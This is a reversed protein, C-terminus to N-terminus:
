NNGHRKVFFEEPKVRGNVTMQTYRVTLRSKEEPFTYTIQRPLRVGQLGSYRRFTRIVRKVGNHDFIDSARLDISQRPFEFTISSDDNDSKLHVASKTSDDLNDSTLMDATLLVWGRFFGTIERHIDDAEASASEMDLDAINLDYLLKQINLNEMSGAFEEEDRPLVVVYSDRDVFVHAVDIGLPGELVLKLSDPGRYLVQLPVRENYQPSEIQLIGQCRFTRIKEHNSNYYEVLENSGSWLPPVKLGSSFAACSIVAVATLLAAFITIKQGSLELFKM